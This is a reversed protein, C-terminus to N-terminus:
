AAARDSRQSAAKIAMIQKAHHRAHVLHFKRWQDPKLPGLVPHDGIRRNGWKKEARTIAEDMARLNEHLKRLADEPALGSPVTYEPAKRGTPIYELRTVTFTVIRDRMTRPRVNLQEAAAHREMGAATAGFALSLHEVIQAASWKEGRAAALEAESMGAVADDLIARTQELYPNMRM